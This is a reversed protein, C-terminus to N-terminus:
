GGSQMLSAKIVYVRMRGIGPVLKSVSSKGASDKELYGKDRLVRTVLKPDFGHCIEKHYMEPLVWYETSGDNLVRRFGARNITRQGINNEEIGSPLMLTFRSEGNREIFERVQALLRIEESASGDGRAELWALYCQRVGWIAHGADWPLIGMSICYEGVGAVAGFRSAARTVQGHADNPVYQQVFQDQVKRIFAVALDLEGPETLKSLLADAPSGYFTESLTQLSDAFVAASSAGHINEFVGYGANADAPIDLMRIEQGAKVTGGGAAVHDALGIEGTSIFLLRWSSTEKADGNVNARAKTQGNGLTYAIDGAEQPDVQGLEDLLLVTDNHERALSEVANGTARWIRVMAKGGFISAAVSLTKTKGTSSQGRFHFGGNELKLADLLPGTLSVCVALIIRSNGVCKSGINVQWDSLTGSIAYSSIKRAHATQLIVREVSKGYSKAPLVFVDGHWGISSVCLARDSPNAATFYEPLKKIGEPYIDAGRSLLVQRYEDKGALMEKPMAWEHKNGDRDHFTLLLGWNQNNTDRTLAKVEICSSILTQYEEGDKFRVEYVGDEKVVFSGVNKIEFTFQVPQVLKGFVECFLHSNWGEALADAADYGAPLTEVRPKLDFFHGPAESATEYLWEPLYMLPKLKFVAAKRDMKFLATSVAKADEQDAWIFVSRGKLPSFDVKNIDVGSRTSVSVNGFLFRAAYGAQEGISLLVPYDPNQRLLDLGFISSTDTSSTNKHRGWVVEPACQFRENLWYNLAWATEMISFGNMYALYSIVGHGTKVQVDDDARKVSWVATKLNIKSLGLYVSNAVYENGQIQGEEAFHLCAPLIEVAHDLAHADIEILDLKNTANPLRPYAPYYEDLYEKLLTAAEMPMYGELHVKLNIMGLGKTDEGHDVWSGTATDVELLEDPSKGFPSPCLFKNGQYHYSDLLGLQEFIDYYHRLTRANIIDHDKTSLVAPNPSTNVATTATAETVPSFIEKDSLNFYTQHMIITWQAEGWYKPTRSM